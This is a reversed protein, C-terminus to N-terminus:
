GSQTGMTAFQWQRRRRMVPRIPNRRQPLLHPTATLFARFLQHNACLHM